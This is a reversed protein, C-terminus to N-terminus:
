HLQTCANGAQPPCSCQVYGLLQILQVLQPIGLGLTHQHFGQASPEIRSLVDGYNGVCTKAPRPKRLDLAHAPQPNCSHAASEIDRAIAAIPHTPPLAHLVSLALRLTPARTVETFLRWPQAIHHEIAATQTPSLVVTAGTMARRGFGDLLCTGAGM